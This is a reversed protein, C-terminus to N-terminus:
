YLEKVTLQSIKITETRCILYNEFSSLDSQMNLNLFMAASEASNFIKIKTVDITWICRNDIVALYININDKTKANIIFM